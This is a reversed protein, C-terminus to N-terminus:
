LPVQFNSSVNHSRPSLVLLLSVVNFKQVENTKNESRNETKHHFTFQSVEPSLWLIQDELKHKLIDNKQHFNMKKKRDTVNEADTKIQKSSAKFFIIAHRSSVDKM